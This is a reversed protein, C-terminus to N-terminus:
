MTISPHAIFISRLSLCDKRWIFHFLYVSHHQSRTSLVRQSHELNVLIRIGTGTTFLQQDICCLRLMPRYFSSSLYVYCQDIFRMPRYFSSSLRLMPRYFSSSLIIVFDNNQRGISRRHQRSPLLIFIVKGQQFHTFMIMINVYRGVCRCGGAFSPSM